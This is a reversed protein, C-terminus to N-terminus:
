GAREQGAAQARYSALLMFHIHDETLWLDVEREGAIQHGRALARARNPCSEFLSGGVVSVEHSITAGRNSILVDGSRPTM